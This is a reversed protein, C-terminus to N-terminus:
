KFKKIIKILEYEEPYWPDAGQLGDGIVNIFWQGFRWDPHKSWSKKIEKLFPEIRKKDRM